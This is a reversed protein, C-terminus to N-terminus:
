RGSARNRALPLLAQALLFIVLPTIWLARGLHLMWDPLDTLQAAILYAVMGLMMFTLVGCGIATMQSKFLGRESGTDFHVDVTRRRRLSKDVAAALELTTSYSEMWRTCLERSSCLVAIRPLFGPHRELRFEQISGDIATMRMTVDAASAVSSPRITLTAPPLPRESAPQSNLTILRVLLSGDPALSDLATVQSYRLGIAGLVDLGQEVTARLHQAVQAASGALRQDTGQGAREPLPIDMSLQSARSADVSLEHRDRPLDALATRGTLPIVSCRSEDLILHLEFSFAPSSQSPPIVVVHRDAQAAARALKLTEDPDSVALVAVDVGAALLADEASAELRLPIQANSIAEGLSGSVACATLSHERSESLERFLGFAATSSGIITFNM